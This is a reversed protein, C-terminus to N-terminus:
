KGESSLANIINACGGECLYAAHDAPGAFKRGAIKACEFEYGSCTQFREMVRVVAPDKYALKGAKQFQRMGAIWMAGGLAGCAGGSLGIGGALGAAMVAHLDSGGLRRATLAACSVPLIPTEGPDAAFAAEIAGYAAPAFRSAMRFCGVVGGKLFFYAFMRLGSSSRSIDTIELCNLHGTQAQFAAAIGQAAILARTEAEPGAGFLRHAQAGAALAAGWVQGCQYGYQVLGGALPDSAAEEVPLPHGYARNLVALLTQSCTGKTLFTRTTRLARKRYIEPEM